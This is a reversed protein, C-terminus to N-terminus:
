RRDPTPVDQTDTEWAPPSVASIFICEEDYDNRWSHPELAEHHISDGPGLTYTEEGVTVTLRGRLVFCFGEGPYVPAQERSGGPQCIVRCPQISKDSPAASLLEVVTNNTRDIRKGRSSEVVSVSPSEDEFFYGIGVGLERAIVTLKSLSPITIDREIQSLYSASLGVQQGLEALTLGQNHRLGRLRIGINQL